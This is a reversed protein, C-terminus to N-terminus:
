RGYPAGLDSPLEEDLTPLGGIQDGPKLARDCDAQCFEIASFSTETCFIFSPWDFDNESILM